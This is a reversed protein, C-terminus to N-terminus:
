REAMQKLDSELEMVRPEMDANGETISEKVSSDFIAERRAKELQKKHQARIKEIEIHHSAKLESIDSQLTIVRSTLRLRLAEAESSTTGSVELLDENLKEGDHSTGEQKLEERVFKQKSDELETQLDAQRSDKEGERDRECVALRQEIKDANVAKINAGGDIRQLAKVTKMEEVVQRVRLREDDM